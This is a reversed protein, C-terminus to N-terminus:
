WRRMSASAWRRPVGVVVGATYQHEHRRRERLHHRQGPRHPLDPRRRRLRRRHHRRRLRRRDQRRAADHGAATLVAIGQGNQVVLVTIALPVVLEAMAALSFQPSQLRPAALGGALDLDAAFTGGLYIALAGAGLAVILPPLWAARGRPPRQRWPLGGDHGRRHDLDGRFARVWDLGFDLFVGAVMGMVIPMPIAAMARRVWGSLGLALMLLGTAIYAGIM